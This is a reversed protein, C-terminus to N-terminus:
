SGAKQKIKLLTNDFENGFKEMFNDVSYNMAALYSKKSLSKFLNTDTILYETLQGLKEPSDWTFGCVNDNIIDAPGGVEFVIPICGASMAEVVTMGFHEADSPFNTLDIGYGAGHWYIKSLQMYEMLEIKDVNTLLRIPFGVTQSKIYDYYGTNKPDLAGIICYEWDNWFSFNQTFTKILTELNKEKSFRGITLIINKKALNEVIPTMLIPPEVISIEEVGLMKNAWFASYPSNAIYSDISKVYTKFMFDSLTVEKKAPFHIYHINIAANSPNACTHCNVFLDYNMSTKLMNIYYRYMFFSYFNHNKFILKTKNLNTGYKINIENLEAPKDIIKGYYDDCLITVEAFPYNVEFYQAIYASVAESGGAFKDFWPSYICISTLDNKLMKKKKLINHIMIKEVYIRYIFFLPFLLYHVLSVVITAMITKLARLKSNEEFLYLIKLISYQSHHTPFMIKKLFHRLKKDPILVDIMLKNSLKNFTIITM